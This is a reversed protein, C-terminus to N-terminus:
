ISLTKTDQSRDLWLDFLIRSVFIATFMSALIGLSLTVAFGRVPGTGFQYLIVAAIITTLNADLITLTARSYGEALAKKATLGNRLEERVREFILVNADVAMGITLIIGAIGPLTLTAGFAALGAMILLINLGLVFDAVVGAFGYYIVMFVLVLAGGILAASVGQDISEQGLSPGVSREELITVPAPLAGARLVISLDRAEEVTFRGTISARGGMIKEQITPASYVKGDLVIALRKKVNDGTVTEFIRAGRANFTLSVYAQNMQDFQTKADTIYEGTLAADKKVVIPEGSYDGAANRRQLQLVEDGPPVIGQAARALDADEDVMRFELHATKGIIQIARQPDKLGPLQVQIRYDQQKRIDPEAVGFQDIRNRITKVAQDLALDAMYKRYTPKLALTYRIKDGELTETSEVSFQEGYRKLIEDLVSRSDAKILVFQMKNGPLVTPRLIHIEKDRAESRIDQGLQALSNEVAKDVEVGLTLHIGGMLDLGLNIKDDPLVSGLSSSKVSSVSPLVYLIGLLAIVLTLGVRWGLSGKM